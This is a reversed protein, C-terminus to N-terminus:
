GEINVQASGGGDCTLTVTAAKFASLLLFGYPKVVFTRGELGIRHSVKDRNDVMFKVGKKLSIAGPNSSCHVLQLYAGKNRYFNLAETYNLTNGKKQASNTIVTSKAEDNANTSSVIKETEPSINKTPNSNTTNVNKLESEIPTNSIFYGNWIFYGAVLLIIIGFIKAIQKQENTM